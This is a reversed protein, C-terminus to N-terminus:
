DLKKPPVHGFEQKIEDLYAKVVDPKMKGADIYFVRRANSKALVENREDVNKQVEALPKGIEDIDYRPTTQTGSAGGREIPPGTYPEFGVPTDIDLLIHGLFTSATSWQDVVVEPSWREKLTLGNKMRVVRRLDSPEISHEPNYDPIATIRDRVRTLMEIYIDIQEPSMIPTTMTSSHGMAGHVFEMKYTHYRDGNCGLSPEDTVRGAARDQEISKRASMEVDSEYQRVTEIIRATVGSNGTHFYAEEIPRTGTVHNRQM